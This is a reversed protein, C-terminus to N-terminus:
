EGEDKVPQCCACQWVICSILTGIMFLSWLVFLADEQTAALLIWLIILGVFFFGVTRRITTLTCGCQNLPQDALLVNETSVISDVHLSLRSATDDYKKVTDIFVNELTPQSVSYTEVKLTGKKREMDTFVKGLSMESTNIHYTIVGSDDSPVASEFMGKVFSDMRTVDDSSSGDQLKM